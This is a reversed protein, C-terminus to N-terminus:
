RLLGEAIGQGIESAVQPVEQTKRFSKWGSILAMVEGTDQRRLEGKIRLVGNKRTLALGSPLRFEEIRGDLVYVAGSLDEETSIRLTSPSYALADAASKVIVLALRDVEAGAVADPGAVFPVFVIAGERKFSSENLIEVSVPFLSEASKGAGNFPWLCGQFSIILLFFLFAM